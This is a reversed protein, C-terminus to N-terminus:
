MVMARNIAEPNAADSRLATMRGHLLKNVISKSLEEIAKKQKNTM